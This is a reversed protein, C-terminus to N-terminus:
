MLGDGSPEPKIHHSISLDGGGRGGVGGGVICYAYLLSNNPNVNNITDSKIFLNLM